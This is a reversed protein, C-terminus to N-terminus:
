VELEFFEYSLVGVEHRLVGYPKVELESVRLEFSRVRTVRFEYSLVGLEHRLFRLDCSRVRFEYSM